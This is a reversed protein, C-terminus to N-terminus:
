RTYPFVLGQCTHGLQNAMMRHVWINGTHNWALACVQNRARYGSPPSCSAASQYIARVSINRERHGEEELFSLLFIKKLFSFYLFRNCVCECALFM